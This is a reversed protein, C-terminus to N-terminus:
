RCGVVVVRGIKNLSNEREDESYFTNNIRKIFIIGFGECELTGSNKKHFLQEHCYICATMSYFLSTPLSLRM